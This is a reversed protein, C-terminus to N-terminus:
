ESFQAAPNNTVAQLHVGNTGSKAETDKGLILPPGGRDTEDTRVHFAAM